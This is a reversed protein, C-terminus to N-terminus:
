LLKGRRFGTFLDVSSSLSTSVSGSGSGSQLGTIPDIRSPVGSYSQNTSSRLDLSPLYAARATRVRADANRMAGEAQVVRPQVSEALRIADALTVGAATSDPTQAALPAGALALAVLLLSARRM